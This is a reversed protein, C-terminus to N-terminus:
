AGPRPGLGKTRAQAVVRGARLGAMSLVAGHAGSGPVRVHVAFPLVHGAQLPVDLWPRRARARSSRLDGSEVELPQPPARDATRPGAPGLRRRPSSLRGERA